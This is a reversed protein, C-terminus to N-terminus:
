EREREALGVFMKKPLPRTVDRKHVVNNVQCNGEMRCEGKKRGNCKPRQDRPKSRVKKNRGKIIQKVNNKSGNNKSSYSAKVANSNFHKCFKHKKPFHKTVFQLFIETVNRSVSKKFQLINQKQKRPKESKNKTYNMDFNYDSKKLADKYEM